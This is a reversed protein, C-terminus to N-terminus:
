KENEYLNYNSILSSYANANNQPASGGHTSYSAIIFANLLVVLSVAAAIAIWGRSQETNNDQHRIKKLIQDFADEPPDAKAMGMTSNIIDDKWDEM